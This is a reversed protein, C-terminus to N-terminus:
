SRRTRRPGPAEGAEEADSGEAAKAAEYVAQLQAVATEEDYLEAKLEVICLRHRQIEREIEAATM